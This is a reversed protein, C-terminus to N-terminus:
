RSLEARVSVRLAKHRAPKQTQALPFLRDHLSVYVSLAAPSGALNHGAPPFAM